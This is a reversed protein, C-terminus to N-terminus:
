FCEFDDDGLPRCKDPWGAERWYAVLGLDTVFDKFAPDKRVTQWSRDWIVGMLAHSVENAKRLGTLALETDGFHAAFRTIGTISSVDTYAPDALFKRLAARAAAPDELLAMSTDFVTTGPGESFSPRLEGYLERAEDLSGVSVLDYVRMIDSVSQNRLLSRANEYHVRAQDDDGLATAAAAMGLVPGAALPDLRHAMALYRSAKTIYGHMSLFAAYVSHVSSDNPLRALARQYHEDAEALRWQRGHRIARLIDTQPLEPALEVARLFAENRLAQANPLGFVVAWGHADALAVRALGFDPDLEIAKEFAAVMSDQYAPSWNKLLSRGFLYHEYAVVNETGGEPRVSEDLRLTVQLAGAVANSIEDYIQFIDGLGREYSDTWLRKGGATEILSARIRLRNGAKDVSGELVHEVGLQAGMTAIDQTRGKFASSSTRATVLLDDFRALRSMLDESLGDVFYDQEADSSLNVFPLVAISTPRDRSVVAAAGPDDPSFHLYAAVVLVAVLGGPIAFGWRSALSWPAAVAMPSEPASPTTDAVERVEAVLQYGRGPITIIIGEGLVRRLSSIAQTLNNEEVVTTPWLAEVLAARPVLEGAHQALYVLADFAKPTIAIPNGRGDALLRKGSDLLFGGIAYVARARSGSM